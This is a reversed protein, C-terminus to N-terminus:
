LLEKKMLYDTQDETGLRFIHSSFKKFGWKKYFEIARTNNEWVGLWIVEYKERQAIALCREMLAKGVGHGIMEQLVYIRHIELAKAGKLEKPTKGTRLKTYGVPTEYGAIYAMLFISSPSKIEELIQDQTFASAMYATMNDCSNQNGFAQNFTQASLDLLLSADKETAQRIHIGEASTAQTAM